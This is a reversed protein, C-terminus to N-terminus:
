GPHKLHRDGKEELAGRHCLLAHTGFCTFSNKAVEPPNAKALANMLIRVGAQTSGNCGEDFLEGVM